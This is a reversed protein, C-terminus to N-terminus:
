VTWRVAQRHAIRDGAWHAPDGDRGGPRAGQWPWGRPLKNGRDDAQGPGRVPVDRAPEGGARRAVPGRRPGRRRRGAGARVDPRDRRRLRCLCERNQYPITSPNGPDLLTTPIGIPGLRVAEQLARREQDLGRMSPGSATIAGLPRLRAATTTEEFLRRSEDRLQQLHAPAEEGLARYKELATDLAQNLAQTEDDTLTTLGRVQDLAAAWDHAAQIAGTGRLRDVLTQVEDTLGGVGRGLDDVPQGAGAASEGLDDLGAASETATRTIEDARDIIEQMAPTLVDGAAVATNRIATALALIVDDTTNMSQGARRIEADLQEISATGTLM